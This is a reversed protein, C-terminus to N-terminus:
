GRRGSSGCRRAASRKMRARPPGRPMRRPPQLLPATSTGAHVPSAAHGPPCRPFACSSRAGRRRRQPRWCPHCRAAACAHCPACCRACLAAAAAVASARHSAGILMDHGPARWDRASGPGCLRRRRLPRKTTASAASPSASCSPRPATFAARLTTSLSTSSRGSCPGALLQGVALEDRAWAAGRLEPGAPFVAPRGRIVDASMARREAVHSKHARAESGAGASARRRPGCCRPAFLLLAGRPPLRLAPRRAGAGGGGYGERVWSRRLSRQM